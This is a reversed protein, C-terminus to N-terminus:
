VSRILGMTALGIAGLAGCCVSAINLVAAPTSLSDMSAFRAAEAVLIVVLLTSAVGTGLSFAAHAPLKSGANCCLVFMTGRTQKTPAHPQTLTLEKMTVCFLVGAAEMPSAVLYLSGDSNGSSCLRNPAWDPIRGHRPPAQLLPGLTCVGLVLAVLETVSNNIPKASSPM